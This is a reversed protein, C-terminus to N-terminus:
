SGRPKVILSEYEEQMALEWESADSLEIAERLNINEGVIVMNAYKKEQPQPIHNKWWEGLTKRPRDLYRSNGM